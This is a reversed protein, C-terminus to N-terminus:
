WCPARSFFRKAFWQPLNNGQRQQKFVLHQANDVEKAAVVRECLQIAIKIGESILGCDGHAIGAENVHKGGFAPPQRSDQM